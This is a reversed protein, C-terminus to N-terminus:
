HHGTFCVCYCCFPFFLTVFPGAYLSCSSYYKHICLLVTIRTSLCSVEIIYNVPINLKRKAEVIDKIVIGCKNFPVAVEGERHNNAVYHPINYVEWSVATRQYNPFVDSSFLIRFCFDTASPVISLFWQLVEYAYM